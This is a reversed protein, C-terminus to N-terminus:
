PSLSSSVSLSSEPPPKPSVVTRCEKRLPPTLAAGAAPGVVILRVLWYLGTGALMLWWVLPLSKRQSIVRAVNNNKTSTLLPSPASPSPSAVMMIIAIVRRCCRCARAESEKNIRRKEKLQLSPAAFSFLLFWFM